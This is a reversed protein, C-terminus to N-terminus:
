KLFTNEIRDAIELFSVGNDNIFAITINYTNRFQYNEIRKLWEPANKQDSPLGGKLMGTQKCVEVDEIPIFLDCAVGLCCFGKDNQLAERSQTYKGSRLAEVWIKMDVKEEENFTM